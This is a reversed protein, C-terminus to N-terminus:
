YAIVASAFRTCKETLTKNSMRLTRVKAESRRTVVNDLVKILTDVAVGFAAGPPMETKLPM